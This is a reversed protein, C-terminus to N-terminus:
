VYYTGQQPGPRSGYPTGTAAGGGATKYATAGTTIAAGGANILGALANYQNGTAQASAAGASGRLSAMMIADNKAGAAAPDPGAEARGVNILSNYKNVDQQSRLEQERLNLAAAPAFIDAAAQQPKYTFSDVSARWAPGFQLGTKMLDLSTLGLRRATDAATASFGFQSATNGSPDFAGGLNEAVLRNISDVVDKPVTGKTLAELAEGESRQTRGFAGGTAINRTRRNKANIQESISFIEPLSRAVGKSTDGFVDTSTTDEFEPPVYKTGYLEEPTGIAAADDLGKGLQNAAAKQGKAQQSAGYASVGAAAVTAVAAVTIASM